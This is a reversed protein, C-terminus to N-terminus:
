GDSGTGERALRARVTEAEPVGLSEYLRLAQMNFATAQTQGDTRSTVKGLGDLARAELYADGIARASTLSEEYHDLAMHHRGARLYTEAINLLAVTAEFRESNDRSMSLANLFHILAEGERGTAAYLRGINNLCAAEGRRDGITRYISLAERYQQMGDDTRGVKMRATAVNNLWVARHQRSMEMVEGAEEYHKLASTDRGLQLDMDGLNNLTMQRGKRNGTAVYLSLATRSREKAEDYRGLHFLVMALHHQVEAEGQLDDTSRRIELAQEYYGVAVDFDSRQWHILGLQDLLTAVAGRVAADRATSLGENATQHAEEFRGERLLINSLDNLAYAAGENDNLTRWAAVAREHVAVAEPWHGHTELYEDLAKALLAAHRPRGCKSAEHAVRQANELETTMWSSAQTTDEFFTTSPTPIPRSRYPFLLRDAHSTAALYHDLLRDVAADRISPPDHDAVLKRAYERILDHFRYRGPKTEMILHHDHLADLQTEADSLETGLLVAADQASLETGPHLGLLRFARRGEADLDMYSLEFAVHLQRNEARIETLLRGGAVLREALDTVTWSTRHRLRNGILQVALPLHGCLRVVTQVADPDADPGLDASRILLRAADAPDLVGLQLARAADLGALRRRSTILVLCGPTGPLLPRIQDHALANDLVLLLRRRAVETRWLAARGDLDPPIREAAVGFTRLLRDLASAPHLPEREPNHAGLDIFMQGDTYRPALLHALHVALTSKGVGPMGDIALVTVTGGGDEALTTLRALEAERGTFTHLDRPLDSPSAPRASPRPPILEPDGALIRRHLNQLEAHPHAGLEAAMRQRAHEYVRLAESSRGSRHLALMLLEVPKEDDPFNDVLETLEPVLRADDGHDLRLKALELTAGLFEERMSRRRRLAWRGYVNGLPQETRWLRLAETLLRVAEDPLGSDAIGRAQDRLSRFRHYDIMDPDVDLTYTGPRGVLRAGGLAELGRRLRTMHTYLLDRAKAPAEGDWVRDVLIDTTVPRGPTMLLSALACREKAYGLHQRQGGSWVELPGLIRFEM